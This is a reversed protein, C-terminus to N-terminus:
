LGGLALLDRNLAGSEPVTFHLLPSAFLLEINRLTLPM